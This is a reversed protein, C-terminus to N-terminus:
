QELLAKVEDRFMQESFNRNGNNTFAASSDCSDIFIDICPFWEMDTPQRLRRIVRACTEAMVQYDKRTWNPKGATRQGKTLTM